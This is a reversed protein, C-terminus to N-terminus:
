GGIGIAVGNFGTVATGSCSGRIYITSGAPVERYGFGDLSDTVIEVTSPIIFVHDEIIMIKNTADGFALDIHYNLATTTANDVQM